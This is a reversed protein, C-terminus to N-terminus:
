QCIWSSQGVDINEKPSNYAATVDKRDTNRAKKRCIASMWSSDDRPITPIEPMICRWETLRQWNRLHTSQMKELFVGNIELRHNIWWTEDTINSHSRWYDVVSHGNSIYGNSLSTLSTMSLRMPGDCVERASWKICDFDLWVFDLMKNIATEMKISASM